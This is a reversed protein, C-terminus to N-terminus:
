IVKLQNATGLAKTLTEQALRFYEVMLPDETSRKGRRLIDELEALDSDLQSAIDRVIDGVQGRTLTAKHM